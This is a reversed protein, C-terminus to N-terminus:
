QCQYEIVECVYHVIQMHMEQVRGSDHSPIIVEYHAQGTAAGGGKGLLAVTTMQKAKAAAIAALISPSNGSTSL